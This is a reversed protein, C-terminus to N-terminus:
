DATVDALIAALGHGEGQAEIRTWDRVFAGDLDFFVVGTVHANVRVGFFRGSFPRRDLGFGPMEGVAHRKYIAYLADLHADDAVVVTADDIACEGRERDAGGEVLGAGSAALGALRLADEGECVASAVGTVHSDGDAARFEVELRAAAVHGAEDAYVIRQRRGPAIRLSAEAFLEDAGATGEDDDVAAEVERGRPVGHGDAEILVICFCYRCFLSSATREFRVVPVRVGM